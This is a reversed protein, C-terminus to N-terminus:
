HTNLYNTLRLIGKRAHFKVAALSTDLIACINEYQYGQKLMRIIERQRPSLLNLGRDIDILSCLIEEKGTRAGEGDLREYRTSVVEVASRLEQYRKIISAVQRHDYESYKPPIYEDTSEPQVLELRQNRCM